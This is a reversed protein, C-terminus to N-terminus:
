HLRDTKDPEHRGEEQFCTNLKFLWQTALKLLQAVGTTKYFFYGNLTRQNLLFRQM